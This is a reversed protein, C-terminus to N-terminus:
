PRKSNTLYVEATVVEPMEKLRDVVNLADDQSDAQITVILILTVEGKVPEHDTM